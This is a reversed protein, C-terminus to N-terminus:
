TTMNRMMKMRSFMTTGHKARFKKLAVKTGYKKKLKLFKKKMMKLHRIYKGRERKIAHAFDKHLVKIDRQVKPDHLAKMVPVVRARILPNAMPNMMRMMPAMPMMGPAGVSRM